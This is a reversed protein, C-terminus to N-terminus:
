GSKFEDYFVDDTCTELYLGESNQCTWGLRRWVVRNDRIGFHVGYSEGGDGGSLSLVRIGDNPSVKMEASGAHLWGLDNFVTEPFDVRESASISLDIRSVVTDFPGLKSGPRAEGEVEDIELVYNSQPIEVLDSPFFSHQSSCSNLVILGLLLPINRNM